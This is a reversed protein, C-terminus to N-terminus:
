GITKRESMYQYQTPGDSGGIAIIHAVINILNLGLEPKVIHYLVAQDVDNVDAGIHTFLVTALKSRGM